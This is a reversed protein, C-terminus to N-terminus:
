KKSKQKKTKLNNLTKKVSLKFNQDFKYFFFFPITLNVLIALQSLKEITNCVDNSSCLMVDMLALTRSNETKFHTMLYNIERKLSYIPGVTSLSKFILGVLANLIVM